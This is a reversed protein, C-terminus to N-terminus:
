IEGTAGANRRSISASMEGPSSGEAEMGSVFVHKPFRQFSEVADECTPFMEFLRDVRTMELIVASAPPVAALKLDGNRKIAEEMCRLLVEVGSSDLHRVRSFDFVIYPRDDTLESQLEAFFANAKQRSMDEPVEKVMVRPGTTM